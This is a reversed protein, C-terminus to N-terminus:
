AADLMTAKVSTYQVLTALRVIEGFLMYVGTKQAEARQLVEPLRARPALLLHGTWNVVEATIMGTATGDVLFLRVSRGSASM